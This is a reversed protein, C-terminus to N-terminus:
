SQRLALAACFGFDTWPRVRVVRWVAGRVHVRDAGFFTPRVAANGGTLVSEPIENEGATLPFATYILIGEEHIEEGPTLALAEPPAPHVCGVAPYSETESVLRGAARRCATREVTFSVSGLDPSLLADTLDTM